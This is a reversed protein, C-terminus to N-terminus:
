RSGLAEDEDVSDPADLGVHPDVGAVAGSRIARGVVAGAGRVGGAGDAAVAGRHAAGDDHAAAQKGGVAAGLHDGGRGAAEGDPHRRRGRRFPQGEGELFAHRFGLELGGCRGAGAAVDIGDDEVPRQSAALVQGAGDAVHLRVVDRVKRRLQVGDDALECRPFAAGQEREAGGPAADGPVEAERAAAPRRPRPDDPAFAGGVNGGGPRCREGVQDGGGKRAEGRSGVLVPPGRLVEIGDGAQFPLQAM